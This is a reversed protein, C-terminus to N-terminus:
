QIRLFLFSILLSVLDLPLSLFNTRNTRQPVLYKILGTYTLSISYINCPRQAGLFRTCLQSSVVQCSLLLCTIIRKRVPVGGCVCYILCMWVSTYVHSCLCAYLYIHMCEHARVSQESGYMIIDIVDTVAKRRFIMVM